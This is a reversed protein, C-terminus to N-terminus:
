ERYSWAVIIAGVTAWAVVYCVDQGFAAWQMAAYTMPFDQRCVRRQRKAM